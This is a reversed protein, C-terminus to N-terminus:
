ERVRIYAHRLRRGGQCATAATSTPRGARPVDGLEMHRSQRRCAYQGALCSAAHANLTPAMSHSSSNRGLAMTVATAPMAARTHAESGGDFTDNMKTRLRAGDVRVVSCYQGKARGVSLRHGGHQGPEPEVNARQHHRELAGIAGARPGRLHRVVEGEQELVVGGDHHGHASDVYSRVWAGM